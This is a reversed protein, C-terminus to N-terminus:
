VEDPKEQSLERLLWVKALKWDRLVTDSSVKLVEATEKVSLGGFFRLEVVRSKRPDVAALAHLAEDLAIVDEGRERCVVLTEDLWVRHAEGGRKLRHRSRAFEVLIRRMSQACIAFFHVRNQWRPQKYQILRIYAENILATTQLTHAPREQAMYRHALQRLEEHVLPILKNLAAEDGESWARLLQTVEHQSVEIMPGTQPHM